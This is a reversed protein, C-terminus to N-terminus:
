RFINSLCWIVINSYKILNCKIRLLIRIESDDYWQRFITVFLYSRIITAYIAKNNRLRVCICRRLCLIKEM